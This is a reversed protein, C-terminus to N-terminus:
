ATNWWLRLSRIKNNKQIGSPQLSNGKSRIPLGWKSIGNNGEKERNAAHKRVVQTSLTALNTLKRRPNLAMRRATATAMTAQVGAKRAHCLVCAKAVVFVVLARTM